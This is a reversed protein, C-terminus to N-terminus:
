KRFTTKTITLKDVENTAKLFSKTASRESMNRCGKTEMRTVGGSELNQEKSSWIMWYQPKAPEYWKTKRSEKIEFIKNYERSFGYTKNCSVLAMQNKLGEFHLIVKCQGLKDHELIM